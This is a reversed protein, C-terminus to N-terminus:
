GVKFWAAFDGKIDACGDSLWASADLAVEGVKCILKVFDGIRYHEMAKRHQVGPLDRCVALGPLHSTM